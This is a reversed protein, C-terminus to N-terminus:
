SKEVEEFKCNPYQEHHSHCYEIEDHFKCSQFERDETPITFQLKHKNCQITRM